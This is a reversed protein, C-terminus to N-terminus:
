NGSRHLVTTIRMEGNGVSSFIEGGMKQMLKKAIYLGLGSGPKNGVNSGRYFSDFIHEAENPELTCGSNSVTVLKADEEDAFSIDIREGDGYKVANELVNQLVEIYREKDGLVIIDSYKETTFETGLVKLKDSYYECIPEIAGSLYFEGEKVSLNVFDDGAASIIGAVYNEISCANEDIKGAVDRLKEEDRYLGKKIAASYLRIASVPTRMDHSLSLLFVNKEKELELNKKKEDELKERLMDLGWLFGGFNRSKEESLPITLNGKALEKPYESIRNFTRIYALFFWVFVAIDALLMIAALIMVTKFLTKREGSIDVTYEIRYLQGDIDCIHYHEGSDYFTGANEDTLPYIGTITEYKSIDIRFDAEGAHARLENEVRSLDIKYMAVSDISNKRAFFVATGMVLLLAAFLIVCM